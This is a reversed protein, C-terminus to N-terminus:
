RYTLCCLLFDDIVEDNNRSEARSVYYTSMASSAGHVSVSAFIRCDANELATVTFALDVESGRLMDAAEETSRELVSVETRPNLRSYYDALPKLIYRAAEPVAAISLSRKRGAGAPTLERDACSYLHLIRGAYDFLIRGKDTLTVHRRGRTLLIDGVAGELESIHNSVAPQTIGLEKAAATFSGMEAVTRFVKLRFDCFM